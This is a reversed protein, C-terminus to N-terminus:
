GRYRAGFTTTGDVTSSPTDRGDVPAPEPWRARLLRAQVSAADIRLLALEYEMEAILYPIRAADATALVEKLGNLVVALRVPRASLRAFAPDLLSDGGSM